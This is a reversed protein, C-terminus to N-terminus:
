EGSAHSEGVVLRVETGPHAAHFEIRGRLQTALLTMLLMGLSRSASIHEAPLGVGDDIVSLRFGEPCARLSIRITGAVRNPFAHRLANSIIENLILGCPVARDLDLPTPVLDFVLRADIASTTYNRLLEAALERIYEALDVQATGRSRYLREHVLAMSRVREQSEQLVRLLSPDTLYSSQLYFLSGIVALNNKVRHHVERLLTEKEDVSARLAADAQRRATIDRSITAWGIIGGREDRLSSVRYDMWVAEGTDFRRFRIEVSGHGERLVRPLFDQEIFPRDEPFFCDGVTVRRAAEVSPLGVLRCGAENAYFPVLNTDCMGIFDQSQEALYQFRRRDAELERRGTVDRIATSILVNGDVSLPSLSVEVPFEAGSKALAWLDLGVGMPRPRANAGYERRHVSHADRFRPPLLADVPLGVFEDTSYGFLREAQQNALTVVGAQDTIVMADPASELLGRFRTERESLERTKEEIRQELTQTLERLGAVAEREVRESARLSRAIMVVVVSVIVMTAIVVVALGFEAGWYGGAQGVKLNLWGVAVPTALAWPLLRRATAGGLDASLVIGSVGGAAPHQALLGAALLMLLVATHPAMSTYPGVDYLARTDYAYGLAAVSSALLTGLALPERLVIWGTPRSMSVALGLSLFCVATMPSMRGPPLSADDVFLVQDIRLDWSFAYETLTAAAIAAAVLGLVRGPRSPAGRQITLLAAGTLVFSLATNPKMTATGPLPGKLIDIDLAWALLVATGGALAIGGTAAPIWVTTRHQNV